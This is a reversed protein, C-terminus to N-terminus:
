FGGRPHGAPQTVGAGAREAHLRPARHVAHNLAKRGEAAMASLPTSDAPSPQVRSWKTIPLGKVPTAEQAWERFKNITKSRIQRIIPEAM